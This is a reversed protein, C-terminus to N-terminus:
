LSGSATGFIYQFTKRVHTVNNDVLNVLPTQVGVEQEHQESINELFALVELQYEHACRQISGYELTVEGSARGHTFDFDFPPCM